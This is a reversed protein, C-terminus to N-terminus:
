AEVADEDLDDLHAQWVSKLFSNAAAESLDLVDAFELGAEACVSRATWTVRAEYALGSLADIFHVRAPLDVAPSMRVRVGNPTLDAGWCQAAESAGYVLLGPFEAAHRTIRRHDQALAHNPM